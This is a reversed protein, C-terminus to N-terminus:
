GVIGYFLFPQNGNLSLIITGIIALLVFIFSYVMIAVLCGDYKFKIKHRVYLVLFFEILSLVVHTYFIRKVIFQAEPAGQIYINDSSYADPTFGFYWEHGLFPFIFISSDLMYIIEFSLYIATFIFFVKKM